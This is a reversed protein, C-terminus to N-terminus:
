GAFVLRLQLRLEWDGAGGPKEVNYYYGAQVALPQDGRRVFRGVGAGMPVTWKEGRPASWDLSIVPVSTLYWGDRLNYNLFPQILFGNANGRDVDGALACRESPLAGYWRVGQVAVAVGALGVSWTGAGLPDDRATPRAVYPGLRWILEGPAAPIEGFGAKRRQGPASPSPAVPRLAQAFLKRDDRLGLAPVALPPKIDREPAAAPEGVDQALASSCMAVVLGCAVLALTQFRNQNRVM